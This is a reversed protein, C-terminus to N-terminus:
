MYILHPMRACRSTYCCCACPRLSHSAKRCWNTCPLTDPPAEPDSTLLKENSRKTKAPAACRLHLPPVALGERGEGGAPGAAPGPHAVPRAMHRLGAGAVAPGTSLPGVVSFPQRYSFMSVPMSQLDLQAFPPCSLGPPPAPHLQVNPLLSTSRSAAAVLRADGPPVAAMDVRGATRGLGLPGVAKAARSCGWSKGRTKRVGGARGQEGPLRGCRTWGGGGRGGPVGASRGAGQVGQGARPGGRLAHVAHRHLLGAGAGAHLVGARAPM